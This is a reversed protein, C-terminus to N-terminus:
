PRRRERRPRRKPCPKAHSTRLATVTDLTELLEASKLSMDEKARTLEERVTVVTNELETVARQLGDNSAVLTGM